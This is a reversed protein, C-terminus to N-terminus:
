VNRDVLFPDITLQEYWRQEINSLRIGFLYLPKELLHDRFLMRFLSFFQLPDDTSHPLTVSKTKSTGGKENRYVITLTRATRSKMRLAAVLEEIMNQAIETLVSPDNEAVGFTTERGLSRDGKEHHPDLNASAIGQAALQLWEGRVGLMIKITMPDAVALKGITDIGQERLREATKKGCHFLEEIPKPHFYTCFQRIGFHVYGFPKKIDACMKAIVKNPGVGISCPIRIKDWLTKQIYTAIDAPKTGKEVRPSIDIYAEDVSAVECDGILRLFAMIKASITEYLDHDRTVFIADPCCKMVDYYNMFNQVGKRKAEYSAAIVMGRTKNPTGAVIVPKGYLRRDTSQHCSAYFSNMDALMILKKVSM